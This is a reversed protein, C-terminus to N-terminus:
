APSKKRLVRAEGARMTIKQADFYELLAVLYKRSLGTVSKFGALDLKEHTEFWTRMIDEAAKLHETAYWIGEEVRVLRGADRLAALVPTADKRAVNLEDLLDAINPPAMGAKQHAALIAEGLPADKGSFSAVHAPLRLFEGEASLRGQKLLREIVAHALKPALERGWGSALESRKLGQMATNRAHFDAVAAECADALEALRNDAIYLRLTKDFCSAKRQNSLAALAKELAGSDLNALVRLLTFSVGNAAGEACQLQTFVREEALGATAPASAQAALAALMACRQAFGKGRRRMDAGAPNLVVGGAVTRLPSFSRVVCRDGFVAVAPESFRVEALCSEGPQLKDRDAFYLRAQMERAGHHFHVEARHRLARPSSSLCTIEIVWRLSPFLTEPFSLVDGRNVDEVQLDPINVATRRGAPATKVATGHSQLGRVKSSLGRPYLEVTDGVSVSGAIMTGTVVTGSGHMTFVRDVPLRFLDQSRVPALSAELGALAQTLTDLGQGTRASVPIVSAGELASGALLSTIDDEALAIMEEDVADIKTLAVVGARIGLLNCIELHERTQPMVGEDAAVVLLVFDVGTAGAVMARVFKEHGPVDVVSLSRGGPLPLEAFGLEITIGRRKEETLRDCDTGTLARILSTKGHDIHGATGMVVPM